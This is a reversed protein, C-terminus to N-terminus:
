PGKMSEPFSSMTSIVASAPNSKASMSQSCLGTSGDPASRSTRAASARPRGEMMRTLLLMGAVMRLIISMPEVPMM